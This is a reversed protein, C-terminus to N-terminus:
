AKHQHNSCALYVAALNRRAIAAYEDRTKERTAEHRQQAEEAIQADTKYYDTISRHGGLALQMAAAQCPAAQLDESSMIHQVVNGWEGILRGDYQAPAPMGSRKCIYAAAARSTTRVAEIHAGRNAFEFAASEPVVLNLHLGAFLEGTEITWLGAPALKARLLKERLAKIAAATNELPKAVALALKGHRHELYEARDAFRAARIRACRECNRWFGCFHSGRCDSRTTQNSNDM